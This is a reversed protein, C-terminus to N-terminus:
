SHEKDHEAPPTQQLVALEDVPIHCRLFHGDGADRWPPNEQECIAGLKRPCRTHFRCGHPIDAASPIDGDLRIRKRTV